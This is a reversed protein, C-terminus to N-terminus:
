ERFVRHFFTAMDEAMPTFWPENNWCGHKGRQYTNTNQPIALEDLQSIFDTYREGPQALEGDLSL